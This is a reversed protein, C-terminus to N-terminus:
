APDLTTSTVYWTSSLGLRKVTVMLRLSSTADADSTFMLSKTTSTASVIDSWGSNNYAWQLSVSSPSCTVDWVNGNGIDDIDLSWNSNDKAEYKVPTSADIWGADRARVRWDGGGRIVLTPVCPKGDQPQSYADMQYGVSNNFLTFKVRWHAPAPDPLAWELNFAETDSWNTGDASTQWVLTYIGDPTTDILSSVIGNRAANWKLAVSPNSCSYSQSTILGKRSRLEVYMSKPLFQTGSAASDAGRTLSSEKRTPFYSNNPGTIGGNIFNYRVEYPTGTWVINVRANPQGSETGFCSASTIAPAPAPGKAEAPVQVTTIGAALAFSLTLAQTFKLNTSM